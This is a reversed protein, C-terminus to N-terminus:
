PVKRLEVRRNKARNSETDNPAVPKTDGFGKAQLRAAGIGYTRVLAQVVADARGQSLTLNHAASGTKDTHGSVELKLARDIKLLTAVEELTARSEPKIETRDVDFYIGYLDISGRTALAEAMDVAKVTVMRNEMAKTTVTDVMVAIEDPKFVIPPGGNVLTFTTSGPDHKEGVAITLGVEQGGNTGKATFYCFPGDVPMFTPSGNQRLFINGDMFSQLGTNKVLAFAADAAPRAGDVQCPLQEHALTFGAAKVAQEYNRFLELATHGAPVRYILRTIAGERSETTTRAPNKPDPVILPYDDFSRTMSFVIESGAYRKLFAPDKSGPVDAAELFAVGLVVGLAASLVKM